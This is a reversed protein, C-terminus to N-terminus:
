TVTAEHPGCLLSTAGRDTKKAISIRFRQWARIFLKTM